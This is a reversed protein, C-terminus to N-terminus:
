KKKKNNCTSGSWFFLVLIDYIANQYRVTKFIDLFSVYGILNDKALM